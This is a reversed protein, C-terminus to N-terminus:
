SSAQRLQSRALARAPSQQTAPQAKPAPVAQPRTCVHVLGHAVAASAPPVCPVPPTHPRQPPALRRSRGLGASRAQEQRAPRQAGQPRLGHAARSHVRGCAQRGPREGAAAPVVGGAGRRHAGACAPRPSAAAACCASCTPKCSRWAAGVTGRPPEARQKPLAHDVPGGARVPRHRAGLPAAAADRPAVSGPKGCRHRVRLGGACPRADARLWVAGVRGGCLGQLWVPGTRVVGAEGGWARALDHNGTVCSTPASFSDLYARATKLAGLGGSTQGTGLDGLQVVLCDDDKAARMAAQPAHRANARALSRGGGGRQCCRWISAPTRSPM